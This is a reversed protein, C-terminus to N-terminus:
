NFVVSVANTFNSTASGNIADRFWSTFNWTDGIVASVLGNPTPIQTLDLHLSFAGTAGSNQIQGAGVYRGIAGGLCLNGQSGGPNMVLGQSRSTLFFGFANNPLSSATLTVDNTTVQTFGLAQIEGSAGTSNAVAPGCYPTGITSALPELSLDDVYMGPGSGTAYLDLAAISGVAHGASGSYGTSYIYNAFLVGDFYIEALDNDLDLVQRVEVWRDYPIGTVNSGFGGCNCTVTGNTGSFEIWSGWEYPGGHQYANMVMYDLQSTFGTPIYVHGIFEWTGSTPPTFQQITDSGPNPQISRTGSNAYASSVVTFTSTVGDWGTWGGQTELASGAAYSEFDDSWSQAQAGAVLALSLSLSVLPGTCSSTM